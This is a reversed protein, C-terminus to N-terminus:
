SIAQMLGYLKRVTNCNRVTMGKYVPTGVIRYLKTKTAYSRDVRWIIAGPTYLRDEYEPNIPYEDLADSRDFEPWLFMVDCKMTKDNAWLPDIAEVTKKIEDISRLTVRVDHGFKKNIAAEIQSTPDARDTSFIVNGSNIYTKVNQLGLSEFVAKLEAMAITSKGGVNIGRLLAVYVM